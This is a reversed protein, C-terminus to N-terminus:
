SRACRSFRPRGSTRHTSWRARAASAAGVRAAKRGRENGAGATTRLPVAARTNECASRAREGQSRSTDAKMKSAHLFRHLPVSSSTAHVPELRLHQVTAIVVSVPSVWQEKALRASIRPPQCVVGDAGLAEAGACSWSIECRKPTSTGGDSRTRVLFYEVSSFVCTSLVPPTSWQYRPHQAHTSLTALHYTRLVSAPEAVWPRLTVAVPVRTHHLMSGPRHAPVSGKVVAWFSESRGLRALIMLM